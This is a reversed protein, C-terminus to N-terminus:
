WDVGVVPHDDIRCTDQDFEQLAAMGTQQLLSPRYPKWYRPTHDKDPSQEPHRVSADSNQKLWALFVRYQANTVEASDIYFADVHTQKSEGMVFKGAPVIQMVSGDRATWQGASLEGTPVAESAHAVSLGLLAGTIAFIQLARKMM